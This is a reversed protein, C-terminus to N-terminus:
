KQAVGICWLGAAPVPLRAAVGSSCESPAVQHVSWRWPRAQAAIPLRQPHSSATSGVHSLRVQAPLSGHQSTPSPWRAACRPASFCSPVHRCGHFASQYWGEAAAAFPPVSRHALPRTTAPAPPSARGGGPRGPQRRSGGPAITEHGTWRRGICAGRAPQWLRHHPAPADGVAMRPGSARAARPVAMPPGNPRSQNEPGRGVSPRWPPGLPWRGGSPPDDSPRPVACTLDHPTHSSTHRAPWHSLSM